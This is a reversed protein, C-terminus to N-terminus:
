REHRGGARHATTVRHELLLRALLGTLTQRTREPLAPWVAGVPDSVARPLAFLDSQPVRSEPARHRNGHHQM